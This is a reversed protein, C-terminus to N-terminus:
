CSLSLRANLMLAFLKGLVHGVTIGRYNNPNSTDGKKHIATIAGLLWDRPVRGSRFVSNFLRALVPSLLGGGAKILGAKPKLGHGAQIGLQACQLGVTVGLLEGDVGGLGLDHDQTGAAAAASAM